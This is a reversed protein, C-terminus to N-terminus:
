ATVVIGTASLRQAFPKFGVAVGNNVFTCIGVAANGSASAAELVKTTPNFYVPADLVFTDGTDIQTTRIERDDRICITGRAAAAIGDFDRVEGFYGNILVLELHEVAYGLNNTVKVQNMSDLSEEFNYNVKAETM